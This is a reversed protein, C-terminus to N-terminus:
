CRWYIDLRVYGFTLVYLRWGTMYTRRPPEEAAAAVQDEISAGITDSIIGMEIVDPKTIEDNKRSGPRSPPPVAEQAEVEAPKDDSPSTAM